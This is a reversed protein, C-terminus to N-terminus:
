FFRSWDVHGSNIADKFETGRRMGRCGESFYSHISWKFYIDTEERVTYQVFSKQPGLAELIAWTKGGWFLTPILFPLSSGPWWESSEQGQAGAHQWKSSLSHWIGSVAQPIPALQGETILFPLACIVKWMQLFVANRCTVTSKYAKPFSLENDSDKKFHHRQMHGLQYSSMWLYLFPLGPRHLAVGWIAPWVLPSSLYRRSSSNQVPTLRHPFFLKAVM